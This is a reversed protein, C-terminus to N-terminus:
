FKGQILSYHYHNRKKYIYYMGLVSTCAESIVLSLWIGDLGLVKPLLLVVPIQFVFVRAFSIIASLKGNNLATFFSSGFVALGTFLFSFSFLTFGHVTMELLIPEKSFFIYAINDAYLESIGFIVLSFTIILILSKRLLSSLENHNESGYHYSLLPSLGVVYGFFIASFLFSIYMMTGYSAVGNSGAYKLLQYNYLLGVIAYSINSVMESIGNSLVQKIYHMNLKCKIMQLMSNNEKTFYVIPLLGGVAQAIVSAIAAGQIGMNLKAIFVYNLCVNILGCTITSYLGLKNKNAVMYLNEFEFQVICFPIGFMYIYGYALTNDLLAGSAGLWLAAPKLLFMGVVLFFIGVLFSVVTVTTFAINAEEQKQQGLLKGLLASGGSGFLFGTSNFLMLYPFIFNVAAFADKGVLNSLFLGDVVSYISTFIMMIVSPLTMKILDKYSFHQNFEM